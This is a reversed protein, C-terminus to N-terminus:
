ASATWTPVLMSRILTWRPSPPSPPTPSQVGRENVFFDSSISTNQSLEQPQTLVLGSKHTPPVKAACFNLLVISVATLDNLLSTSKARCTRTQADDRQRPLSPVSLTHCDFLESSQLEALRDTSNAHTFNSVNLACTKEVLM